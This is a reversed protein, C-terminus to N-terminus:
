NGSRCCDMGSYAFPMTPAVSKGDGLPDGKKAQPSGLEAKGSSPLHKPLVPLSASRVPALACVLLTAVGSVVFSFLCPGGFSRLAKEESATAVRRARGSFPPLPPVNLKM